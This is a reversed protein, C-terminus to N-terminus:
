YCREDCIARNREYDIGKSTLLEEYVENLEITMYEPYDIFMFSMNSFLTTLVGPASYFDLFGGSILIDATNLATQQRNSPNSILFVGNLCGRMVFVSSKTTHSLINSLSTTYAGGVFKRSHGHVERSYRRRTTLVGVGKPDSGGCPCGEDGLGM